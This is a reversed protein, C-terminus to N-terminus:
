FDASHQKRSQSKKREIRIGIQFRATQAKGTGM